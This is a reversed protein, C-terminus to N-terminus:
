ADKWGEKEATRRRVGAKKGGMVEPMREKRVKQCVKWGDKRGVSVGKLETDKCGDKKGEKRRMM